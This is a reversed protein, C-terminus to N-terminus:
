SSAKRLRKRAGYLSSKSNGRGAPRLLDAMVQLDVSPKVRFLAVGALQLVRERDQGVVEYAARLALLAVREPDSAVLPPRGKRSGTPQRHWGGARRWGVPAERGQYEETGLLEAVSMDSDDVDRLPALFGSELEIASTATAYPGRLAPGPGQRGTDARPVARKVIAAM